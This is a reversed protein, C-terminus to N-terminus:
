DDRSRATVPKAATGGRLLSRGSMEPPQDIGLLELVTPAVDALDGGSACLPVRAGALLFPVPYATHRTHPEGTLPDIMEECNGHDATLLIRFGRALAAEIVRHSERDLTEVAEIIASRVATHGVMDANAFNVLVFAYRGSAIAAITRGAVARASMEPTLDYTRAMPSAIIAREEGAFPTERGGNFFYTM